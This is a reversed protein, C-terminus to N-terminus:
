GYDDECASYIEHSFGIVKILDLLNNVLGVVNLRENDNSIRQAQRWLRLVRSRFSRQVGEPYTGLDNCDWIGGDRLRIVLM